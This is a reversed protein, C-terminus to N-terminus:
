IGTTIDPKSWYQDLSSQKHSKNVLQQFHGWIKYIQTQLNLVLIDLNAYELCLQEMHVCLDLADKPWTVEKPEEDEDM